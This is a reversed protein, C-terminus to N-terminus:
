AQKGKDKTMLEQWMQEATKGTVPHKAKAAIEKLGRLVFERAHMRKHPVQLDKTSIVEQGYLLLDLDICRPGWQEKRERGFLKEIALLRDLIAEARLTTVIELVGNLYDAQAAPGGVPATNYFSSVKSVRLDAAQKLCEVAKDLMARRDGLNSGLGVYALTEKPRQPDTCLM